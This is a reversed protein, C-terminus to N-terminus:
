EAFSRAPSIGGSTSCGNADSPLCSMGVVGDATFRVQVQSRGFGQLCMPQTAASTSSRMEPSGSRANM